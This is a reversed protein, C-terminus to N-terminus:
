GSNRELQRHHSKNPNRIKIGQIEPGNLVLRLIDQTNGLGPPKTWTMRQFLRQDKPSIFLEEAAVHSSRRKLRKPLQTRRTRGSRKGHDSESSSIEIIEPMGATLFHKAKLYSEVVYVDCFGM